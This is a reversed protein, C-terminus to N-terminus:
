LRRQARSIEAELAKFRVEQAADAFIPEETLNERTFGGSLNYAGKEKLDAFIAAFRYFDKLTYPDFKHDHCEACAMTAGMFVTATTRVRDASYRAFYEKDQIGGEGSIRHLRNFGSGVRQEITSGPLLDGALQERVFQDFPLNRNFAGIVYDRYPWTRIGVDNHFGISDAFRVLDLWHIAMREGFHPSALLRDVQREYAAPDGDHV